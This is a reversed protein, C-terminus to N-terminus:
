IKHGMKRSTYEGYRSVQYSCGTHVTFFFPGTQQEPNWKQFVYDLWYAHKLLIGGQARPWENGM